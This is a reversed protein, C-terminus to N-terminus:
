KHKESPRIYLNYSRFDFAFDRGAFLDVGTIVMPYKGYANMPINTLDMLVVEHKNLATDGIRIRDFRLRMQPNFVGVAGRVEWEKRLRKKEKELKTGRVFSWSLATFSAGTDVLTPIFSDGIRTFTYYLGFNEELYPNEVLKIRDWKRVDQLNIGWYKRFKVTSKAHKFQIILGDLVDMGLIGDFHVEGVDAWDKLIIINHNEYKIGAFNLTKIMALPRLEAKNMGSVNREPLINTELGLRQRTKEFVSTRTAGTDIMMRFPGQGNISADVIYQGGDYREFYLTSKSLDSIKRKALANEFIGFCLLLFVAGGALFKITLIKVCIHNKVM